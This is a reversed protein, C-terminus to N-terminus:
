CHLGMEPAEEFALRLRGLHGCEPLSAWLLDRQMLSLTRRSAALLLQVM